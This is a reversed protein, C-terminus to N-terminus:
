SADDILELRPRSEADSTATAVFREVERPAGHFSVPLETARVRVRPPPERELAAAVVRSPNFRCTEFPGFGTVLVLAAAM